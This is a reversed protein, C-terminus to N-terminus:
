APRPGGEEHPSSEPPQVESSASIAQRATKRGRGVGGRPANVVAMKPRTLLLEDPADHLDPIPQGPLV